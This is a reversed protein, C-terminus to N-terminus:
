CLLTLLITSTQTHTYTLSNISQESLTQIFKFFHKLMLLSLVSLFRACFHCINGAGVNMQKVAKCKCCYIVTLTEISM